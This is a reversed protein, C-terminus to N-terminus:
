PLVTLDRDIRVLRTTEDDLEVGDPRRGPKTPDVQFQLWVRLRDGPALGGYSLVVKGDRSTESEAAPEISNVQLGEIWGTDLVLRPHEIAVTTTIDIRSQFYLGGRVSDPSSVVMTAGGGRATLDREPQGFVGWLALAAVGVFLAVFARRVWLGRLKGRDAPVESFLEAM